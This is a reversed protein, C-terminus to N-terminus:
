GEPNFSFPPLTQSVEPSLSLTAIFKEDWTGVVSTFLYSNDPRIDSTLSVLVGTPDSIRLELSPPLNSGPQAGVILLLTWEPTFESRLAWTVAYVRLPTGGLSIERYAGRAEPPINVGQRDLQTVIAEFEEVTSRMATAPAFSPAPLLTWALEEALEDLENQLWRGANMAPQTLLQLLDRLHHQRTATPNIEQRQLRYVWDLLEPNTLVTTGQEWTLVDWLQRDPAHLQPLLTELQPRVRALHQTRNPIDPLPIAAPELGRLNLLLHDTDSDFWTLPLQYTWDAEAERNVTARRERLQDYSLFGRIVATEQEEQVEVIAYFHATYEPLDVVARPVTVEEDTLSGMALLCLQFGNVQLNAIAEIANATAPQFLSCSDRRVELEPAREELWQEFGSLALANLYTQWQREEHPIQVSLAIAAEIAEASLELTELPFAEFDLWMPPIFSTSHTM